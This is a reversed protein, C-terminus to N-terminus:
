VIDISITCARVDGACVGVYDACAGAFGGACTGVCDRELDNSTFCTLNVPNVSCAGSPAIAVWSDRKKVFIM